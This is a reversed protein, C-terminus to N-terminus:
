GVVYDSGTALNTTVAKNKASASVSTQNNLIPSISMVGGILTSSILLISIKKLGNSM